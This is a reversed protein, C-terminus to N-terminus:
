LSRRTSGTGDSSKWRRRPGTSLLAARARMPDLRPSRGGTMEIFFAEPATRPVYWYDWMGRQVWSGDEGAAEHVARPDPFSRGALGPESAPRQALPRHRGRAASPFRSSRALIALSVARGRSVLALLASAALTM